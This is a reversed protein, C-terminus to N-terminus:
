DAGLRLVQHSHGHGEHNEEEGESRSNQSSAHGHSGHGFTHMFLMLGILALNLWSRDVFFGMILAVAVLGLPM